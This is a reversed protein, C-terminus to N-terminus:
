FTGKIMSDIENIDLVGSGNKDYLHFSFIDLTASSLTCYNWLALVFERFDIKGSKDADFISFVRMTFSTREVDMLTLLEVLGISGSRDDDVKLFIRYLQSVENPSLELKEFQKRWAPKSALENEYIDSGSSCGGGM